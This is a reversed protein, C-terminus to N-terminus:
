QGRRLVQGSLRGTMRGERLVGVGNVWVSDVGVAYQHPKLFDAKDGVKAPDLLVLDAAMGPRILGRDYLGIRQAPLSSMKRVAEELSLVGRERVYRGLVRAFTGYSRPHPVDVGFAPIGGDSAVMTLPDKLIREVDEESIAHYIASCGGKLQIEIATEAANEATPEKRSYGSSTTSFTGTSAM